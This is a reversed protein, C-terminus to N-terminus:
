ASEYLVEPSVRGTIGSRIRDARDLSQILVEVARRVQYGLQDTVEQQTPRV